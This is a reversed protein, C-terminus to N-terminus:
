IRSGNTWRKSVNTQCNNQRTMQNSTILRAVSVMSYYKGGEAFDDAEFRNYMEFAGIVVSIVFSVVAITILFNCIADLRPIWYIENM